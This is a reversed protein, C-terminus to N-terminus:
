RTFSFAAWRSTGDRLKVQLQRCGIWSKDTKWVYIYQGSTADYSLSSGGATVTEEIADTTAASCTTSVSAPYGTAFINLGQDGGLTFKVPIASGAKVVNIVPLNDVPRFFGSFAYSVIVNFTSHATNGAHDTASCNVATTGVAFSSGSAPLCTVAVSGDVLDTATPLTYNVVASSNSAASITVDAHASIVPATTDHVNVNFTTAVATNGAADHASCTVTTNGLAFTSGSAPLCTALGSGDVADSTVPRTYSVSAGAPGTAEAALNAHTAIVPATTDRVRVTFHTITAANGAHDVAACAVATDGLAFQSGSIPSCSAAGAGDVLDTTGPATYTVVAGGASTAEIPGVDAHTAIVPSTTDIVQVTFSTQAAANGAADHADCHVTGVGLAFTSGSAPACTATGTGDVLDHTAPAVYTVAAGGPGTAEVGSINAHADIAPPTTDAVAITFTTPASQNGAADHASCTVATNGLAFTSGSIPLCSAVGAGDVADSTTPSAYSVTAGSPGTAETSIDAHVAIVPATTDRVQVKFSTQAAANGAHDTASCVVTTDGLPFQTGSLPACSAVGNGDVADTTGPAGYSVFAGDASTAEVPGVTGHVSIVPPTTDVVEVSFSTHAAQNGAHDTAACIVHTTGLAFTSGSAPSCFATGNGDVLDHTAPSAYTVAAGDAGTAEIGTIDDQADIIPPTTDVISVAFTTAASANGAADHANCTVTTDGLAFTSGSSPLCTASGPGDVADSTSPSEYTVAAGSPGTAEAAIGAHAAILPATTDRVKVLFSTGTAPNGAHDTAACAVTTDGLAFQSGSIPSCSAIGAGDVIDSTVPATYAVVAGDASTAEIPGVNSHVAIAPPTTDVVLVSFSTQGAQNGAHDTAACIVHTAGLAFTSGSVPACSATGDGDVVDHSAPATYSVSAGDPGTAEIGSIDVHGDITPPTTDVVTVNFTTPVAANGHADTAGCTVTSTGLAFTSGSIPACSAVLDGDVVDHTAPSTYSVPAGAPGTAEVGSIAAHFDITPPTGDVVTVDFSTPAAANGHTDSANCTVPSTGIAFTSGSAPACSAVGAGDVLDHSAPGTYVVAAGGPGTAEIGSIAAHADISPPTTDNVTVLSTAFGSNGGADKATWHITTAGVPFTAPADSTISTVGVADTATATGHGVTTQAGTAEATVDAPPTVVPATTDLVNVTFHIPLATNGASDAAGCQVTSGGLAFQSGSPPTCTVVPAADVADSVVPADFNVIAGNSGTAEVAVDSHAQLVPGTTDVITIKFSASAANGASDSANCHVTTAGMAFVSGSPPVCAIPNPTLDDVADFETAVYSKTAGASNQAEATIDAPVGIIPPTIDHIFVTCAASSSDGHNDKVTLTFPLSGIQQYGLAPATFSISPTTLSGVPINPPGNEQSWTYSAIGDDTDFSGSGNLTVLGGENVSIVGGPCVLRAVPPDNLWLVTVLNDTSNTLSGDSVTLRFRLTSGSTSNAVNPATFTAISGSANRNLTVGGAVPNGTGDIQTWQYTLGSTQPTNNLDYSTSGDLTVLDGEHISAPSVSGVATPPINTVVDTVNVVTTATSTSGECTVTLRFNLTAGAAAVNPANFTPLATNGSILTVPYGTPTSGLYAWSFSLGGNKPTSSSGDLHVVTPSGATSEPVTQSASQVRANPNCVAFAPTAIAFGAIAAVFLWARRAATNKFTNM